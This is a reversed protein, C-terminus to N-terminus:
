EGNDQTNSQKCWVGVTLSQAVSTDLLPIITYPSFSIESLSPQSRQDVQEALRSSSI